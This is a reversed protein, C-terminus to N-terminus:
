QRWCKNILRKLNEPCKDPIPPREGNFAVAVIIQCFHSYGKWPPTRAIMEYLICGLAYVDAKEDFKPSNFQEPAMYIPTGGTQTMIYSKFPDKGRSIGFDILKARGDGDLLINDPKLDRHVVAISVTNCLSIVLCM